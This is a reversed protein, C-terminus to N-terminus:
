DVLELEANDLGGIFMMNVCTSTSDTNDADFIFGDNSTCIFVEGNHKFKQGVKIDIAKM